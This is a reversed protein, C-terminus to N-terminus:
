TPPEAAHPRLTLQVEKKRMRKFIGASTIIKKLLQISKAPDIGKPCVSSCAAAFHCRWCGHESDIIPLRYQLGKDRSDVSFRYAKNLIM